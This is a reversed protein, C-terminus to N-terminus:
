EPQLSTKKHITKNYHSFFHPASGIRLTSFHPSKRARKIVTKKATIHYKTENINCSDISKRKRGRCAIRKISECLEVLDLLGHTLEIAEDQINDLSSPITITKVKKTVYYSESFYVVCLHLQFGMVIVYPVKIHEKLSSSDRKLLTNLVSKAAIVSKRKDKSYKPLSCEKAMEGFGHDAIAQAADTVVFHLDMKMKVGIALLSSLITDDRHPIVNSKKFAKEILPGWTKVVYDWESYSDVFQSEFLHAQEMHKKLIFKFLSVATDTDNDSGQIDKLNSICVKLGRKNTKMNKVLREIGQM